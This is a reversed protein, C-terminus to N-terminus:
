MNNPVNIRVRMMIKQSCVLNKLALSPAWIFVDLLSELIKRSEHVTCYTSNENDMKLVQSGSVM